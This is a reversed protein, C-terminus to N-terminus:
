NDLIHFSSPVVIIIRYHVYVFDYYMYVASCEKSGLSNNNEYVNIM